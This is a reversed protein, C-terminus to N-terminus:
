HSQHLDAGVGICLSDLDPVAAFSGLDAVAVVTCQTGEAFGAAKGSGAEEAVFKESPVSEEDVLQEASSLDFRRGFLGTKRRLDQM